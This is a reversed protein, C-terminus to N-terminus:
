ESVLLLHWIEIIQFPLVPSMQRPVSIPFVKESMLTPQQAARMSLHQRVAVGIVILHM